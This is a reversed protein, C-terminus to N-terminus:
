EAIANNRNYKKLALRYEALIVKVDDVMKNTIEAVSRTDYGYVVEDTETEDLPRGRLKKEKDIIFVFPTAKNKDLQYNTELSNFFQKIAQEDGFLFKWKETSVTTSIEQLLNKAQDQTGEEALVIFQLDNFKFNKDYIKENLNFANGEMQEIDGGYISLITIKGKLQVKDGSLSKFDSLEQVNETLVPLKAFNNVGSSFFLYAVLPLAFLVALVFFKKM